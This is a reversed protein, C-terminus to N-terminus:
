SDVSQGKNKSKQNYLTLIIEEPNYKSEAEMIDLYLKSSSQSLKNVKNRNNLLQEMESAFKDVECVIVAKYVGYDEFGRIGIHTSIIPLGHALYDVMKVNRGSGETVPNLALFANSMIRDKIDDDVTGHLVLNSTKKIKKVRVSGIIDFILQPFKEALELIKLLAQINPGYISGIFVVHNSNLGNWPVQQMNLVHPAFYLKSEDLDYIDRFLSIDRKTVSLVIDARSILEGEISRCEDQFKNGERLAYEVNHADYVIFKDELMDKVLPFQWPGEFVIIESLAALEILRKLYKGRIYKRRSIYIELSRNGIIFSLGTLLLSRYQESYGSIEDKFIAGGCSILKRNENKILTHCRLSYASSYEPIVRGHAIQLIRPIISFNSITKSALNELKKRRNM